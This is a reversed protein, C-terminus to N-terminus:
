LQESFEVSIKPDRTDPEVSILDEDEEEYPPDEDPPPLPPPTASHGSGWMRLLNSVHVHAFVTRIPLM